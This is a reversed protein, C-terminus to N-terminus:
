ITHEIYDIDALKYDLLIVSQMECSLKLLLIYQINDTAKYLYM